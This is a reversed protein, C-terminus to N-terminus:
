EEGESRSSMPLEPARPVLGRGLILVAPRTMWTRDETLLGANRLRFALDRRVAPFPAFRVGLALGIAGAAVEILLLPLAPMVSVLPLRTLAVLGAVALAVFVAPKYATLVESTSVAIFRRLFLIYATQRIVEGGMLAAAFKWPDGGSVAALMLLIALIAIYGLQLTVLGNLKARAEALLRSLQSMINLAAAISFLPVLVIADLWQEGLLVLVIERGAVAMGAAVPFLIVAGLRVVSLYAGRIRQPDSQVRSFGPYLVKSLAGSLYQSIPINVLYFARNYIGLAATSAMRGVAFTDLNKGVFEGLHVLSVRAGFSYLEKFEQFRILPRLSHRVCSYHLMFQVITLTLASYVLSWVGAGAWASLLGVAASALAQGIQIFSLERFRMERRLLAQSTMVLGSFLLSISMVRLLPSADPENFVAAVSPASFWLALACGGGTILGATHSARIENVTVKPRQILAQAVGMRAFYFGFNVALNAIAMLGHERTTLLRAMVMVYGIQVISNFSAALYSWGLGSLTRGTLSESGLKGTPDTSTM